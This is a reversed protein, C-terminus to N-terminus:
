LKDLRYKGKGVVVIKGVLIPQGKGLKAQEYSEMDYADMNVPDIAYIVGDIPKSAKLKLVKQKVAIEPKDLLDEDITPHSAFANTSVKGFGYCVLNENKNYPNFINCDIATEKVANLLQSSVRKKLISTDLLSEDTSVPRNDLKSRDRNMLEINRKSTKQEETFVSVYLFVKVNRYQEDLDKHSCIRRARGIVQEVRVMNWYPETIHVFRTNKLNIGEAGSSTIMFIKIIEGFHNNSSIERLRTAINSPIMAWDGNYVNRIIEKEEATETGTYLVFKPKGADEETEIMTWTDGNDMKKIKFEAFGNALLILRFIGIGEVTRFQSYFLHLGKNNEDMINELIKAFKPSYKKLGEGIVYEEPKPNTPDYELMKMANKIKNVYDVDPQIDEVDDQSAYSDSQLVEEATLADIKNEDLVFGEKDSNTPLPRGPPDPFAYNCVARSRIRYTSSITEMILGKKAAMRNAKATSTEKDAEIKRVKEYEAFQYESMEVPVLHYNEGEPTTVFEPLLQESASRFYSSLGLIRKKFADGNKLNGTEIDVFMSTFEDKDDPLAKYDTVFTGAKMIQIGNKNLIREIEKAFDEDTINGTEDLTVGQYDTISNSDGGKHLEMPIRQNYEAMEEGRLDALEAEEQEPTIIKKIVGNEIKFHSDPNNNKATKSHKGKKNKPNIEKETKRKGGGHKEVNKNYLNIFGYPNRTVVLRNGSYEVYDYTLLGNKHFMNVITEKNVKTIKDGTDKIVLQFTWVRIYGRLINFLIGLENTYNIMPTGSLMIIKCNVAKMLADYLMYSVSTPAKIKNVIRSVFNHAEDIIVTKNDFPNGEKLWEVVKNKRMGNYNIDQYKSRIMMNLQDDVAVKQDSTLNEFNPEKKSFDVMWAGRKRTIQTLPIQLINSLTEALEPNGETSIFEWFQNKRYMIDGCKKLESFFNMKLSAPTLLVIQRDNKMGEAIAISTCTKGSGLAHYILLGRYPTYINLYDRVVKQHTLLKMDVNATKSCSINEANELIEKKYPRFLETIKQIYMKRNNMYYDSVRIVFKEPKPLRNGITKRGVKIGLNVKAPDFTYNQYVKKGPMKKKVAGEEVNEANEVNEKIEGEQEPEKIIIKKRKIIIKKPEEPKNEKVNETVEKEIEKPQEEVEEAIPLTEDLEDYEKEKGMEEEIKEGLTIEKNIKAPMKQGHTEGIMGPIVPIYFDDKVPEHGIKKNEVVRVNIFTNLRKLVHERNVDYDHRKDEFKIAPKKKKDEMATEYIGEETEEQLKINAIEEPLKKQIISEMELYEPAKTKQKEKDTFDGKKLKILFTPPPKNIRKKRLLDLPGNTTEM